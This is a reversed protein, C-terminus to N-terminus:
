KAKMFGSRSFWLILLSGAILVLMIRHYLDNSATRPGRGAALAVIGLLVGSLTVFNAVLAARWEIGSHVLVLVAGSALSLGCLLQVIAAPIIRPEHFRGIAFGM